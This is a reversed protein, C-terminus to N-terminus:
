PTIEGALPVPLRQRIEEPSAGSGILYMLKTACAELTMDGAGVAGAARARRGGAYADLDVQGHLSPCVIAVVVGAGALAEIARAIRDDEVPINGTGFAQLVVARVGCDALLELPQAPQGPLLRLAVVAPDFAGELRFAGQPVLSPALRRFGTGLEALPPFGPSDFAGFAFSSTKTTRNGRLLKGGFYIGVETVDRLALDVAGVLNARADSRVDALPRQSGTLIVPKPLNKLVYSLASATFPMTDTGHTVVFGDYREMSEAITRALAMWHTPTLDTSDLNCLVRTEVDALRELEPVHELLAADLEDPALAHDKERPRM